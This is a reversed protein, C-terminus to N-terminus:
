KKPLPSNLKDLSIGAAYANYLWVHFQELLQQNEQELRQIKREQSEIREAAVKLSPPLTQKKVTGAGSLLAKVEDFASKIRKHKQLTQRTTSFRLKQEIAMVLRDWSLKSEVPWDDLIEVIDYIDKDTLHRAM